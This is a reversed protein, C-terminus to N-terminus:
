LETSFRATCGAPDANALSAAELLQGYARDDIRPGFRARSADSTRRCGICEEAAVAPRQVQDHEAPRSLAWWTKAIRPAHANHIIGRHQRHFARHSGPGAAAAANM